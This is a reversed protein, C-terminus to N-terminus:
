LCDVYGVLEHMTSAPTRCLCWSRRPVQLCGEAGKCLLTPLHPNFICGYPMQALLNGQQDYKLICASTTLTHSAHCTLPHKVYGGADVSAQRSIRCGALSIRCGAPRGPWAPHEAAGAQCPIVPMDCSILSTLQTPNALGTCCGAATQSMHGCPPPHLRKNTTIRMHCASGDAQLAALLTSCRESSTEDGVKAKDHCSVPLSARVTDISCTDKPPVVNGTCCVGKLLMMPVSTANCFYQLHLTRCIDCDDRRNIQWGPRTRLSAPCALLWRFLASRRTSLLKFSYLVRGSNAANHAAHSFVCHEHSRVHVLASQACSQEVRNLAM